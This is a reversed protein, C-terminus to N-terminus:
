ALIGVADNLAKEIVHHMDYYKYEALRGGFYTEPLTLKSKQYLAMIERDQASNVPYYPENDDLISYERMVITRISEHNKEPHLHKPEHIRTYPVEPDAFNMVSTGQYDEDEVLETALRVSRWLLKGHMYDFYRDIPGTYILKGCKSRWYDRDSFFDTNLEIPLGALMKEFLSTYGHVPIGQYTDNFYSDDYSHRVPIRTMLDTPLDKPDRAWQKWTYGKIFAEYLEKGILYIAKEEFNGPQRSIDRKGALYGEVERPRLSVNFFANITGLNIPMSYVKGKHTTLVRHRYRNFEGFGTLYDWVAKNSTHFIHSGYKHVEIDTNQYTYSYCNGGIHDRKEIILITKGSAHLREAIVSGYLGCGVILYDYKKM